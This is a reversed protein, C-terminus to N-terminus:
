QGTSWYLKSPDCHLVDKLMLMCGFGDNARDDNGARNNELDAKEFAGAFLGRGTLFLGLVSAHSVSGHFCKFYLQMQKDNKEGDARNVMVIERCHLALTNRMEQVLPDPLAM